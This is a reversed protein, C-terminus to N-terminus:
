PRPQRRRQTGCYQEVAVNTVDEATAHKYSAVVLKHPYGAMAGLFTTWASQWASILSVDIQGRESHLEDVGPLFVRGRYSRGRKATQLKVLAAVQPILEQGAQAGSWKAPAGTTYDKSATVGDLPTIVVHTVQSGNVTLPNWMEKTVETDIASYLADIDGPACRFHMVNVAERAIGYQGWHLAVRAVNSIVPLPAM